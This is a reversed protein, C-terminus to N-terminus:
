KSKGVAVTIRAVTGLGNLRERNFEVAVRRLWFLPLRGDVLALRGDDLVAWARTPLRDFNRM